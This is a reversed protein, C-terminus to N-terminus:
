EKTIDRPRLWRRSVWWNIFGQPSVPFRAAQRAWHADDMRATDRDFADELLFGDEIMAHRVIPTPYSIGEGWLIAEHRGEATM